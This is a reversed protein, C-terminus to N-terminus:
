DKAGPAPKLVVRNETDPAFQVRRVLTESDNIDHHEGDFVGNM